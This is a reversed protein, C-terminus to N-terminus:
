GGWPGPVPRPPEAFFSVNYATDGQQILYGNAVLFRGIEMGKEGELALPENVVQALDIDAFPWEVLNERSMEDMDAVPGFAYAQLTFATPVVQQANAPKTNLLTQRLTRFSQPMAEEFGPYITVAHQRESLNVTLVSSPADAIAMETVLENEPTGAPPVSGPGPHIAWFDVEDVVELLAQIEEESLTGMWVSNFFGPTAVGEETWIVTGDGFLTWQPLETTQAAMRFGGGEWLQLVIDDPSSSWTAEGGSPVETPQANPDSGEETAVPQPTTDVDPAGTDGTPAPGAGACATVLWLLLLCGLITYWRQRM